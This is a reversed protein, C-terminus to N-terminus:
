LTQKGHLLDLTRTGEGAGIGREPDLCLASAIRETTQRERKLPRQASAAYGLPLASTQLVEMVPEVGTAAELSKGSHRSTGDHTDARPADTTLDPSAKGLEGATRMRDPEVEDLGRVGPRFADTLCPVVEEDPHAPLSGMHRRWRPDDGLYERSTGM